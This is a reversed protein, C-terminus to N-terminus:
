FFYGRVGLGLDPIGLSPAPFVGVVPAVEVFVEFAVPSEPVELAVGVPVRIGITSRAEEDLNLQLRGGVGVYVPFVMEPWEPDEFEGVEYLYDGHVHISRRPLNWAVAADVASRGRRLVATFGTPLGVVLGLGLGEPTEARATPSALLAALLCPIM